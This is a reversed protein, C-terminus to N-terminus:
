CLVHYIHFYFKVSWSLLRKAYGKQEKIAKQNPKRKSKRKLTDSRLNICFTWSKKHMNIMVTEPGSAATTTSSVDPNDDPSITAIMSAIRKTRSDNRTTHQQQM